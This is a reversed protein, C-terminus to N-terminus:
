STKDSKKKLNKDSKEKNVQTKKSKKDSKEKNVQNKKSKKDSKEKPKKNSDEDLDEESNKNVESHKWYVYGLLGVIILILVIIVVWGLTGMGLNIDGTNCSAFATKCNGPTCAVCVDQQCTASKAFSSCADPCTTPNCNKCSDSSLSLCNDQTSFKYEDNSVCYGINSLHYAGLPVSILKGATDYLFIVKGTDWSVSLPNYGSGCTSNNLGGSIYYPGYNSSVAIVKNVNGSYQELDTYINCTSNTYQLTDRFRYCQQKLINNYSFNNDSSNNGTSTEWSIPIPMFFFPASTGINTGKTNDIDPNNTNTISGLGQYYYVLYQNLPNTAPSYYINWSQLSLTGDRWEYFCQYFNFEYPISNTLGLVWNNSGNLIIPGILNNCKYDSYGYLNYSLRTVTSLKWKFYIANLVIGNTATTSGNKFVNNWGRCLALNNNNNKDYTYLSFGPDNPPVTYPLNVNNGNTTSVFGGLVFVDKETLPGNVLTDTRQPLSM